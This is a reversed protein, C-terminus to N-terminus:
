CVIQEEVGIKIVGEALRGGSEGNVLPSFFPKKSHM